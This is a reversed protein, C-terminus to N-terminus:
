VGSAVMISCHWIGGPLLDLVSGSWGGPSQVNAHLPLLVAVSHPCEHHAALVVEALVGAEAFVVEAFVVEHHAALVVEALVVEELVGVQHRCMQMPPCCSQCCTGAASWKSAEAM